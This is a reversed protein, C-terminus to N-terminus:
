ERSKGNNMNTEGGTLLYILLRNWSVDLQQRKEKLQEWVDDDVRISRVPYEKDKM